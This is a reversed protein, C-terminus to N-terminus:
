SLYKIAYYIVYFWGLGSHLICWWISHWTTWSLVTAIAIGMCAGCTISDTNIEKM